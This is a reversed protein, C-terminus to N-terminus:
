PGLRYNKRLGRHLSYLFIARYGYGLDDVYQLSTTNRWSGPNEKRSGPNDLVTQLRAGAEAPSGASGVPVRHRPLGENPCPCVGTQTPAKHSEAFSFPM